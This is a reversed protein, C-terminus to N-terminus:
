AQVKRKMSQFMRLPRGTEGRLGSWIGQFAATMGDPRRIFLLEIARAVSVFTVWPLWGALNSRVFLIRNRFELFTSLQSRTYKTDTGITTGGKHYIVADFAYGVGCAKKARMGWDLDEYYLFYKEEMPGILDLCQRTIYIAAGSPSDLAEEIASDNPRQQASSNADVAKTSALFRRWRLGRTHILNPADALVIRGTTMGRRRSEAWSVLHSLADPAVQTDPNLIFAGPWHGAHQLPVLWRNVGGGYGVNDGADGVFVRISSSRFRLSRISTFKAEPFEAPIEAITCPGEDSCLMTALENFANAGGNECVFVEFAPSSDMRSLSLLCEKVDGPNSYSVIIVPIPLETAM